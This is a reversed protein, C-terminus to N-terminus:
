LLQHHQQALVLTTGSNVSLQRCSAPFKKQFMQSSSFKLWGPSCPSCSIKKQFKQPFKKPVLPVTPPSEPHIRQWSELDGGIAVNKKPARLERLLGKTKGRNCAKKKFATRLGVRFPCTPRCRRKFRHPGSRQRVALDRAAEWLIKLSSRGIFPGMQEFQGMLFYKPSVPICYEHYKSLQFIQFHSIQLAFTGIHIWTIGIHWHHWHNYRAYTLSIATTFPAHRSPASFWYRDM